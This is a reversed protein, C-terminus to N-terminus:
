EPDSRVVSDKTAVVVKAGLLSIARLAIVVSVPAGHELAIVTQRSVGLWSALEAQTWDRARRLGRIASGLETADYAERM